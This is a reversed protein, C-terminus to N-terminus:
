KRPLLYVPARSIDVILSSGRALLEGANEGTYRMMTFSQTEVPITVRQAGPSTSWAAIRQETGRAFILVYDSDSGVALRKQFSFGDLFQNVTKAALYSPKPQFSPDRGPQYTHRVLGFHHEPEDLDSGDDQWDYWISVPVGNAVNTLRQRAVLQAQKEETMGPWVSSYGWEGSVIPIPRYKDSPPKYRSIMERLLCYENPAIEANTQRYPHVSVASWYQLLGAKFCAELFDFDIGLTAPGILKEDPVAARFSRGVALALAVYEEVNPKPPWFLPVNPENFCEWIIGRGAFHKAAAVAWRAFAQRAEETRVAKDPTYLSNGYDLIFLARIGHPELAAMLRDYPSFDYRGREKETLDWIFDMRVWRFGADAIMKIEGPRAETFHINVGAGQPFGVPDLGSTWANRCSDPLRDASIILSFFVSLLLLLVRMKM